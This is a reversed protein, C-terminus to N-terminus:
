KTVRATVSGPGVPGNSDAVVEPRKDTILPPALMANQTANPTGPTGPYIPVPVSNSPPSAQGILSSQITQVVYVVSVGTPPTSDIYTTGTAPTAQNLPTYTGSCTTSTTVTCRSVVYGCALNTTTCSASAPWNVTVTPPPSPPVQAHCGATIALALFSLVAAFKRTM